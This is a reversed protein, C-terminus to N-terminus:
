RDVPAHGPIWNLNKQETREERMKEMRWMEITKNHVYIDSKMLKWTVLSHIMQRQLRIAQDLYEPKDLGRMAQHHFAADILRSQVAILDCLTNPTFSECEVMTQELSAVIDEATADREDIEALNKLAQAARRLQTSAVSEIPDKYDDNM